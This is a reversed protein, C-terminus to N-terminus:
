LNNIHFHMSKKCTYSYTTTSTGGALLLKNNFKAMVSGFLGYQNTVITGSSWAQTYTDYIYYNFSEKAMGFILQSGISDVNIRTSIDFVGPFPFNVTSWQQTVTNYLDISYVMDNAWSGRGFAFCALSGVSTSVPLLRTTPMTTTSWTKTTFDFIDVVQSIPSNAFAASSGGAFLALNGVTVPSVYCRPSSLSSTSWANTTTDYIDVRSVAPAGAAGGNAGGAFMFYTGVTTGYRASVPFATRTASGSVIDGVVAQNDGYLFVKTGLSATARELSIAQLNFSSWTQTTSDYVDASGSYFSGFMIRSGATTTWDYSTQVPLTITSTIWGANVLHLTLM